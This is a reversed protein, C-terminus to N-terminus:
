HNHLCTRGVSSADYDHLHFCGSDNNDNKNKIKYKKYINPRHTQAHRTKENM